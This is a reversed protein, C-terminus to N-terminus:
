ADHEIQYLRSVNLFYELSEFVKHVDVFGNMSCVKFSGFEAEVNVLHIIIFIM